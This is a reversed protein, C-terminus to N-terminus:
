IKSLEISIKGKDLRLGTAVVEDGQEDFHRSVCFALRPHSLTAPIMEATINGYCIQKWCSTWGCLQQQISLHKQLAQPM